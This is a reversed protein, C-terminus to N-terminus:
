LYISNVLKRPLLALCAQQRKKAVSNHCFGRFFYHNMEWSWILPNEIFRSHAFVCMLMCYWSIWTIFRNNCILHWTEHNVFFSAWFISWCIDFNKRFRHREHYACERWGLLSHAEETSRCRHTRTPFGVWILRSRGSITRTPMVPLFLFIWVQVYIFYVV